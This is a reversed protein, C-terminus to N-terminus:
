FVGPVDPDGAVVGVSCDAAGGVDVTGAVNVLDVEAPTTGERPAM